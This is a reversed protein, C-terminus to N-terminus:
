FESDYTEGGNRSGLARWIPLEISDNVTSTHGDGFVVVVVGPHASRAAIIAHEDPADPISSYSGCDTGSWNPPAVHNYQTADYGAFPWGNSWDDGPLWRGAGFFDFTNGDTLRDFNGCWNFIDNIPVEHVTRHRNPEYTVITTENPLDQGGVGGTGMLRESFFATKSLGDTYEGPKLGKDGMSFAGNGGSVFGDFSEVNPGRVFTTPDVAEGAYYTSGGFNSRYSNESIIRERSPDSPCLFLGQATAYAEFHPNTPNLMKKFQGLSFDILNYVNGAEMFPLIWVHVSFNGLKDGAPVSQYNTHGSKKKGDARLWDPDLRGPPFTRHSSEYNVAGLGMQKLNNTCQTRRAAERAAQVAPLLLAVLVGIIAIVVLLEVLTFGLPTFGCFKKNPRFM